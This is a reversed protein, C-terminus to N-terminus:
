NFNLIEAKDLWYLPMKYNPHSLFFNNLLANYFLYFLKTLM